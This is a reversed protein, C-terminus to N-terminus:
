KTFKPEKLIKLIIQFRFLPNDEFVESKDLLIGIIRKLKGLM